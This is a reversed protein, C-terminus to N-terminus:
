GRDHSDGSVTEPLPARVGREMQSLEVARMGRRKAEENLSMDRGMRDERMRRGAEIWEAQEDPVEGAGKCRLCDLWQFGSGAVGRNVHAFVRKEGHCDPCIM